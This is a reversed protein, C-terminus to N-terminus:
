KYEWKVTKGTVGRGFSKKTRNSKEVGRRQEIDTVGNKQQSWTFYSQSIHREPVAQNTSKQTWRATCNGGSGGM